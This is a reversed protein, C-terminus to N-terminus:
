VEDFSNGQRQSLEKEIIHIKLLLREREIFLQIDRMQQQTVPGEVSILEYLLWEIKRLTNRASLLNTENLHQNFYRNKALLTRVKERPITTSVAFQPQGEAEKMLDLIVLQTQKLYGMIERQAMVSELRNASTTNIQRDALRIPEPGRFDLILRGLILGLAFIAGMVPVLVKWNSLRISFDRKRKSSRLRANRSITAATHDWDITQMISECEFELDAGTQIVGNIAALERSCAPCSKLHEATARQKDAPAEKLAYAMLGRKFEPSVCKTQKM